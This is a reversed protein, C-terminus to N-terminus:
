LLKRPCPCKEPPVCENTISNLKYGTRCYCGYRCEGSCKRLAGDDCYDWCDNGCRYAQTYNCFLNQGILPCQCEPICIRTKPDRLYGDKCFCGFHTGYQCLKVAGDCAESCADGEKWVENPDNCSNAPSPCQNEPVCTGNPHRKHGSKCFCGTFCSLICARKIGDVCKETCPNGCETRQENPDDCKEEDGLIKFCFNLKIEHKVSFKRVLCELM